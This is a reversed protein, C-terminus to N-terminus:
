VSFTVFSNSTVFSTAYLLVVSLIQMQRWNKNHNRILQIAVHLIVEIFNHYIRSLKLSFKRQMEKAFKYCRFVLQLHKTKM